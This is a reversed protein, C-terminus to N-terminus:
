WFRGTDLVKDSKKEIGFAEFYREEMPVWRAFFVKAYEGNRKELREKQRESDCTLFIKLDYQDALVPHQSYSGEIVTLKAPATPVAESEMGAQCNFPRYLVEKGEKAPLLVEEKFRELDMNGAPTEMWDEARRDFPLYFDDMHFVNGDFVEKILDALSSKGSGCRGDISIVVREQGALLDAIESLVPLWDAYETKLVRYHPEYARRYTESHHVPPCGEARYADMWNKAESGQKSELVALKEGLGEMTGQHNEMTLIMLKALLPADTEPHPLGSLSIRSLGNGIEEATFGEAGAPLQSLEMQIFKCLKEKEGLHLPGFENQYALKVYDQIEMRPYKRKHEEIIDNFEFVM